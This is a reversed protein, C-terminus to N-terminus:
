RKEPYVTKLYAERLWPVPADLLASSVEVPDTVVDSWDVEASSFGRDVIKYLERTMTLKAEHTLTQRAKQIAKWDVGFDPVPQKPGNTKGPPWGRLYSGGDSAGGHVETWGLSVAVAKNAEENTM